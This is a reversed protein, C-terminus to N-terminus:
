MSEPGEMILCLSRQHQKKETLRSRMMASAAMEIFGAEVREIAKVEEADGTEGLWPGMFTQGCQSVTLDVTASM